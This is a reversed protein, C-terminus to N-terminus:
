GCHYTCGVFAAIYSPIGHNINYNYEDQTINNGDQLVYKIQYAPELDSTNEWQIQNYEDLDNIYSTIPTYQSREAISLENFSLDSISIHSNNLKYSIVLNKKINQRPRSVPSFNCDMTIKAVTYNSLRESTQKQGYGPISSSTIYDGSELSGNKNTIWIAGEGISNIYFRTDGIEKDLVSVFAGYNDERINPDEANSVVGFCSKDKEKVCLSVIPLSENITIASNGKSIGGSMKVLENTNSCVILGILKNADQHSYNKIFCRHQGTFNLLSSATVSSTLYGKSVENYAFNLVNNNGNVTTPGVIDWYSNSLKSQLRIYPKGVISSLMVRNTGDTAVCCFQGRDPSWCVSKWNGTPASTQITWRYGDFSTMIRKDNDGSSAVACFVGFERSWCVSVWGSTPVTVPTWNVGDSSVIVRNTGTSAVACFLQIEMAWCVCNWSNNFNTTDISTWSSGDPSIAIRTTNSGGNAVTCFLMRQPSWCISSWSNLLTIDNSLTYSFSSSNTAVTVISSQKIANAGVICFRAIEASYVFDTYTSSFTTSTPNYGGSGSGADRIAFSQNALHAWAGMEPLQRVVNYTSALPLISSVSPNVWSVGDNSWSVTNNGCAVFGLTQYDGWTIFSLSNSTNAVTWESIANVVQADTYRSKSRKATAYIGYTNTNYSVDNVSLDITTVLNFTKTSTVTQSSNTTMYGAIGNSTVYSQTVLHNNDTPATAGSYTPLKSFTVTGNIINTTGNLLLNGSHTIAQNSYLNGNFTINGNTGMSQLAPLSTIYPQLPNAIVSNLNGNINGTINGSYVTSLGSITTIASGLNLTSSGLTISPTSTFKINTISSSAIKSNSITGSLKDSTISTDAFNANTLTNATINSSGIALNNIHTTQIVSSGIASGNIQTGKWIGSTITGVSVLSSASTINPQSSTTVNGSIDAILTGSNNNYMLNTNSYISNYGSTNQAFLLYLNNSSATTNINLQSTNTSLGSLDSVFTQSTITNSSPNYTLSGNTKVLTTNGDGFLLYRNLNANDNIINISGDIIANIRGITLGSINGVTTSDATTTGVVFKQIDEKWGIFNNNASGFKKIIIGSDNNTNNNISIIQDKIFLNTSNLNAINFSIDGGVTLNGSLTLHNIGSADTNSDLILANGGINALYNIKTATTAIISNGLLLGSSIGNHSMVNLNGNITTNGGISLNTNISVDGNNTLRLRETNNTYFLIENNNVTIQTNADTYVGDLYVWGKNSYGEFRHSSTNYRIYGYQSTSNATPRSSGCPIRIADTSSIDFSVLPSSTNLSALTNIYLNNQVNVTNTTQISNNISVDQVATLNYINTNGSVRLKSNFLADSHVYMNSNFSADSNVFLKNVSCDNTITIYNNVSVNGNVFLKSNFSTDNSVSVNTHFSADSGILLLANFSADNNVIIKSSYVDNTAKLINNVSVDNQVIINNTQNNNVYLSNNVSVDNFVYLNKTITGYNLFLKGNISLDGSLIDINKNRVIVNGSVDLFGQLYTKKIRNASNDSLWHSVTNM